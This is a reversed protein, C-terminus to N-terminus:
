LDLRPPDPVCSCRTRQPGPVRLQDSPQQLALELLVAKEVASALQRADLRQATPAADCRRPARVPRGVARRGPQRPANLSARGHLLRDTRRAEGRHLLLEGAARSGHQRELAAEARVVERHSGRCIRHFQRLEGPGLRLAHDGRQLKNLELAVRAIEHPSVPQRARRTDGDSSSPGDLECHCHRWRRTPKASLAAHLPRNRRRACNKRCAAHLTAAGLTM